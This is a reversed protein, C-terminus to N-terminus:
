SIQCHAFNSRSTRDTSGFYCDLLALIAVNSPDSTHDEALPLPIELGRNTMQFAGPFLGSLRGITGCRSFAAPSSALVGRVGNSGDQWWTFISHYTSVRM